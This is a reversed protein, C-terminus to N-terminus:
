LATYIFYIKLFRAPIVVFSHKVTRTKLGERYNSMPALEPKTIQVMHARDNARIVSAFHLESIETVSDVDV